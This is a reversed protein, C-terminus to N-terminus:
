PGIATGALLRVIPSDLNDDDIRFRRDQQGEACVIIDAGDPHAAVVVMAGTFASSIVGRLEEATSANM